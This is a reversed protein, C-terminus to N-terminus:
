MLMDKSIADALHYHEPKIRIAENSIDLSKEWKQLSPELVEESEFNHLKETQVGNKTRLGFIITENFQNLLSLTEFGALPQKYNALKSLYDDLSSVNWWRKTGDFGHASPGFALYPELNWYHHNHLCEKGPKSFHAIEYQIFGHETLFQNCQTFMEFEKGKPLTTIEGSKIRDSLLTGEEVILPYIALHDPGIEIVKSIDQLWDKISQGPINYLMDISLNEFSANRADEYLTLCNDKKYTRTLLTLLKSHLSQFGMSLRNVGMERFSILEELSNEGPNVELTIEIHDATNYYDRLKILIDNVYNPPLLAPSGGGLYITDFLWDKKHNKATLEIELYLMEVFIDIDNERKDIYRDFKAMIEPYKNGTAVWEQIKQELLSQKHDILDTIAEDRNKVKWNNNIYVM